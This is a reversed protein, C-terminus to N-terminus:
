SVQDRGRGIIGLRRREVEAASVKWSRSVEGEIRWADAVTTASTEAYTALMRRVSAQDNGVVAAGVERVRDMLREHPVVENVLGWTLATAADVYDGTVSMQRARRVGVAQPLLVTLGWGPMVGVRAHTDSFAARESAILFDCNLAIELGGTVAVGNIAGILPKTLPPLPGRYTVDGGSGDGGLRRGGAGVEKLDLGACFAPDSGTVVVVDVGDDAELDEAAAYLAKSLEVSLANRKDPRHLTLVGVRDAVDVLLVDTM